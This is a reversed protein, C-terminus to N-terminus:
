VRKSGHFSDKVATRLKALQAPSINEMENKQFCFLMFISDKQDWYYITRIGGSKGIGPLAWRLKRLGGGGVVLVGADPRCVLYQQLKRYEDDPLFSVIQKTFVPTEIIEMPYIYAM